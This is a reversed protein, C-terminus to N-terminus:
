SIVPMNDIGTPKLTEQILEIQSKLVTKINYYAGVQSPFCRRAYKLM